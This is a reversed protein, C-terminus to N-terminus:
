GLAGLCLHADEVLAQVDGLALAVKRGIEIGVPEEGIQRSRRDEQRHDIQRPLVDVAHHIQQRLRVARPRRDDVVAIEVPHGAHLFPDVFAKEVLVDLYREADDARQARLDLGIKQQLVQKQGGIGHAEAGPDVARDARRNEKAVRFEQLGIPRMSPKSTTVGRQRRISM